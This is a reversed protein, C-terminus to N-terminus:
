ACGTGPRLVRLIREPQVRNKLLIAKSNCKSSWQVVVRSIALARTSVPSSALDLPPNGMGSPSSTSPTSSGRSTSCSTTALLWCEIGGAQSNSAGGAGGGGGGEEEFCRLPLWLVMRFCGALVLPNWLSDEWPCRDQETSITLWTGPMQWDIGM